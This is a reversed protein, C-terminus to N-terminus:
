ECSSCGQTYVVGIFTMTYATHTANWEGSSFAWDTVDVYPICEEPSYPLDCEDINCSFGSRLRDRIRDKHWDIDTADKGLLDATAKFISSKLRGIPSFSQSSGCDYLVITEDWSRADATGAAVALATATVLAPLKIRM